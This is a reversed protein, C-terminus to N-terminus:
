SLLPIDSPRVFYKFHFSKFIKEYIVYLSCKDIRRGKINRLMIEDGGIVDITCVGM